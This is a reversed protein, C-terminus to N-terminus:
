GERRARAVTDRWIGVLRDLYEGEPVLYSQIHVKGRRGMARAEDPRRVLHVMRDGLWAPNDFDPAIFGTEGDRVLERASVFPTVIVPTNMLYSEVIVRPFGEYASPLLVGSASAFWPRLASSPVSGLWVVRRGIGLARARRELGPRLPGDGALVLAADAVQESALAFARLITAVNKEGSLRGVFLLFPARELGRRRLVADAAVLEEPRIAAEFTARDVMPHLYVLKRTLHPFRQELRQGEARSVVRITDSRTAVWKGILNFGRYLFPRQRMWNPSDLFSSRMQVNLALGHRRKLWVGALGDDFPTQTTVIDFRAHGVLTQSMRLAGALFGPRTCPVPYVVLGEGVEVPEVSWSRPAKVIVDIRGGPCHRRLAAAYKVHREQTDGPGSRDGVISPDFSIMLVRMLDQRDGPGSAAPGAELLM